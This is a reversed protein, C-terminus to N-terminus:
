PDLQHQAKLLASLTELKAPHQNALDVKETPDDALNYLELRTAKDRKSEIIKWGDVILAKKSGVNWYLERGSLLGPGKSPNRLHPLLNVGELLDASKTQGGGVAVLTPFWDLISTPADVVGSGLTGPWNVFAPVRIGGEYLSGKWDRLPRNDGLVDHPKDAYRGKYQTNSTWKEQGGNDSTYVIITNERQHTQELANVIQGIGHDMHTVSAAFIKRSLNKIDPYRSTWEEPEDLPYHPVTYAVYLFFPQDRKQTILRIAEDTILDTAHGTEEIFIGDRHWTADGFKYLHTYPDIQGHLAGYSSEFGYRGPHYQRSLGLHWKGSSATFYGLKKLERPLHAIDTPLTKTSDGAIPGHIGFRSPNRGAIVAARTPSCTPYVYHHTLKVGQAALRDLTPTQIESQNYGIDRFGQDDSIIFLINPQEALTSFCVLMCVVVAIAGLLLNRM